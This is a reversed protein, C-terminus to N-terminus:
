GSKGFSIGLEIAFGINTSYVKSTQLTQFMSIGMVMGYNKWPIIKIGQNASLGVLFRYSKQDELNVLAEIGIPINLGLELYVGPYIKLFGNFGPSINYIDATTYGKRALIDPKAKNQGFSIEVPIIFDDDSDTFGVYSVKWGRYNNSYLKKFGFTDYWVNNGIEDKVTEQSFSAIGCYLLVLVLCRNKM